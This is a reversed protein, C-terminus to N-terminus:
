KVAKVILHWGLDCGEPVDVKVKRKELTDIVDFHVETSVSGFFRSFLEKAEDASFVETYPNDEKRESFRALIEDHSHNKLFEQKMGRLFLISYAYLLSDRHYLMIMAKGSPKLVRHVEAVAKEIGPIHHLVGFSYVCDFTNDDFPLDRADARIIKAALGAERFLDKTLNMGVETFDVSTVHAGNRAYEVSDIGAGCGIELVSKGAFDGFRFVDHMYDQLSYRFERKEKYSYGKDRFNMPPGQEWFDRIEDM